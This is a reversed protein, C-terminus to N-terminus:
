YFLFNRLYIALKSEVYLKQLEADIASHEVSVGQSGISNIKYLEDLHSDIQITELKEM